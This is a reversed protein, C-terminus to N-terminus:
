ALVGETHKERIDLAAISQYPALLEAVNVSREKPRQHLWEELRMLLVAAEAHDRMRSLLEMPPAGELQLRERWYALLLWELRGKEAPTLRGAVASEVLPRLQDALTPPASEEIPIQKPRRAMRRGVLWIVAILWVGGGLGLLWPYPFSSTRKPPPIEELDGTHSAPLSSRITVMAPPLEVLSGGDSRILFDCLNYTGAEQGIYRLDYVRSGQSSTVQAIRLHIPSREDFPQTTLEPGDFTLMLQGEIGVRVEQSWGMAPGVLGATVLGLLFVSSKFM